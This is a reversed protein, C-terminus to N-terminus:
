HTLLLNNTFRCAEKNFKKKNIGFLSEFVDPEVRCFYPRDALPFFSFSLECPGYRTLIRLCFCSFIKGAFISVMTFPALGHAKISTYVGDM